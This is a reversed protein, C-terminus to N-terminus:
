ILTHSACTFRWYPGWKIKTRYKFDREFGNM